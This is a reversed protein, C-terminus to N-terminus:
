EFMAIPTQCCRHCSSCNPCGLSGSTPRIALSQIAAKRKGEINVEFLAVLVWVPNAKPGGSRKSVSASFAGEFLSWIGRARFGICHFVLAIFEIIGQLSQCLISSM